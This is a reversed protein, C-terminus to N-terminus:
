RGDPLPLADGRDPRPRRHLHGQRRPARVLDQRPAARARPRRARRVRDRRVAPGLCVGLTRIGREPAERVLTPSRGAAEPVDRDPRSSWGIRDRTSRRKCARTTPGFSRRRGRRPRGDGAGPQLHLQRLQRRSAGVDDRCSGAPSSWRACCRARRRVRRPRRRPPIPTPWSARAPRSAASAARRDDGHPDHHVHGANRRLRPLRGRGRLPRASRDRAGRHAGDRPDEARRVGDGGPLVRPVRRARRAGAQARGRRRVHSAHRALLPRRAHAGEGQGHGRALRSRHRQARPRRAHRARRAGERVRPARGRERRGRGRGERAAAHRRDPAHRGERGRRARVARAVRRRAHGRVTELLFMYPSPNVHRLARYLALPDPAPTCTSASRSSSRSATARRSSSARARCASSTNSPRATRVSRSRARPCAPSRQCRRMSHRSSAISGARRTGPAAADDHALVTLTHRLHDFAVITDYIGFVAEPM